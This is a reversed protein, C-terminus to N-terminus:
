SFIAWVTFRAALTALPAAPSASDDDSTADALATTYADLTEGEMAYIRTSTGALGKGEFSLSKSAVLNGNSSDFKYIGRKNFPASLLVYVHTSDMYLGGVKYDSATGTLNTAGFDLVIDSAAVHQGSHSRPAAGDESGDGKETGAQPETVAPETVAPETVAPETPAPETVAPETPVPAPEVASAAQGTM